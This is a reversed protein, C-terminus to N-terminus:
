AVMSQATRSPQIAAALAEGIDRVHGDLLTRYEIKTVPTAQAVTESM